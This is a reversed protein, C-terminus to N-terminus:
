RLQTRCLKQGNQRWGGEILLTQRFGALISFAKRDLKLQTPGIVYDNGMFANSLRSFSGIENLLATDNQKFRLPYM